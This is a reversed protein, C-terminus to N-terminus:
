ALAIPRLRTSSEVYKAARRDICGRATREEVSLPPHDVNSSQQAIKPFSSSGHSFYTLQIFPRM